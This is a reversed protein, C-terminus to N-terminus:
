GDFWAEDDLAAFRGPERLVTEVIHRREWAGAAWALGRALGATGADTAHVVGDVYRWAVEVGDVRLRKHHRYTATAGPLVQAVAGPVAREEGSETVAGAVVESALPLALLDALAAADEPPAPLVPRDAVVPLLDPADVVVVDGADVVIIDGGMVARVRDPPDIREPDIRALTRLLGRLQNRGIPRAPDALRAVLDRPGGPEALLGVLTDRCGLAALWGRDADLAADDYLGALLPDSDPLRLEGPRQGALVRHHRLWWATYSTVQAREGSPLLVLAPETVAARLEPRALEALARPWRRVDVLELDRVAVLETLVPPVEAPPLGALVDAMWEAEGDLDHDAAEPDLPIDEERLLSFSGLVGAAELVAPGWRRVLEGAVVGFPADESVVEALPGGPLLLEGAPYPEGDDAPLALDALWPADGPQVGAAAVLSLVADAVGDGGEDVAEPGGVAVDYSAVVAARVAPDHLVTHPTAPMAGLRELLPHVAAPDVLRLGLPVLTAPDVGPGPLLLGRPGRVLRGDALPVPLAGLEEQDAGDLSDYLERWGTAPLRLAALADVVEALATERVGLAKLAPRGAWAPAVLAPLVAALGAPRAAGDLGPVLVADEPRLRTGSAGVAPLLPTAALRRRVAEGIAADLEGIPMPGPVLDLVSPDAPLAAVLEAYAHAARDILFDRLPGAAVHRRGPDLPLSAILLAPLTLPEATPTPAHLVAPTTKPLALPRGADDVPIAWTLTWTDREREETPRDALLAPDLRGGTSRLRWRTTTSGDAIRVEEVGDSAGAAGQPGVGDARLTRTDGAVDVTVEVLAPLALLLAADVEALLRAALARAAASRLPLRVVTDWGDGDASDAGTLPLAPFPLRLVSGGGSRRALEAALTPLEGTLDRAASRSWRVGGSRSRISPEDSLALVAAFGVGFRGVAAAAGSAERKASARLTSLAEVGAADLPAGTNAAVLAGYSEGVEAGRETMSELRLLLRGPVGVRAAADAANQALEVVVRDRYAGLALDEEANADERFRAPSAAWAALVRSRLAATAFPDGGAADGAEGGSPEDRLV